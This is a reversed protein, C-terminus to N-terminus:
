FWPRTAHLEDRQRRMMPQGRNIGEALIDFDAAQHAVPRTRSLPIALNADIGSADELPLFRGLQRHYPRGNSNTMLRCVAFTRPRLTGCASSAVASSTISHHSPLNLIFSGRRLNRCKAAPAAVSGPTERM